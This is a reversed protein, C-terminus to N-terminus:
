YNGSSDLRAPRFPGNGNFFAALIKGRPNLQYNSNGDLYLISTDQGAWGGWYSFGTVHGENVLRQLMQLMQTFYVDRDRLNSGFTYLDGWEQWMVPVGKNNSLTKLDNYYSNPSYDGNGSFNGYYDVVALGANTFVSQPIWGSEAESYNNSTLGCAVTKGISTFAMQSSAILDNFFNAFNSTLGGVSSLFINGDFAHTTPEPIPAWIDGNAFYTPNNAIFKYNKGLWTTDGDTPASAQTGQPLAKTGVAFPFNYINEIACWTGRHLVNVGLAHITDCWKQYHAEATRPSPFVGNANLDATSDFPIAIAIHTPHFNNVITQCVQLIQADSLQSAVVDKTLKMVDISKINLSM